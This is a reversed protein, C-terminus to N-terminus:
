KPNYIDTKVTGWSTTPVIWTTAPNSGATLFATVYPNLITQIDSKAQTGLVYAENYIAGAEAIARAQTLQVSARGQQLDGVTGLTMISIISVLVVVLVLATVLAFGDQKKNHM